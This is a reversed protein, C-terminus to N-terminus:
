LPRHHRSPQEHNIALIDSLRVCQYGLKQLGEILLPLNTLTQTGGNHLLIISGPRVQSLIQDLTPITKEDSGTYDVVNVDYLITQMGTQSIIKSVRGNIQCGPPRFYHTPKGTIKYIIENTKIIEDKVAESKLKTLNLHNFTHNGIDHDSDSIRRLLDPYAESERGTVFFTARIGYTDLLNLLPTCEEPKPGDDFTLAVCRQSTPIRWVTKIASSKKKKPGAFVPSATAMGLILSILLASFLTKQIVSQQM